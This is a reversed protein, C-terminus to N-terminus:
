LPKFLPLDIWNLSILCASISIILVMFSNYFTSSTDFVLNKVPFVGVIASKSYKKSVVFKM